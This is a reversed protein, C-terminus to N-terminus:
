EKGKEKELFKRLAIETVEALSLGMELARIKAKKWVDFGLALSTKVFRQGQEIVDEVGVEERKKKTM